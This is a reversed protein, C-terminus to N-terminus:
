IQFLEQNYQELDSYYVAKKNSRLNERQMEKFLKKEHLWSVKVIARIEGFRKPVNLSAFAVFHKLDNEKFIGSDCDYKGDGFQFVWSEGYEILSNINQSKVGIKVHSDADKLDSDWNKDKKDYINYDPSSLKPFKDLLSQYVLEEGIKGIKIDQTIKDPNFQNRKAYKDLSSNVSKEAFEQCKIILDESIILKDM